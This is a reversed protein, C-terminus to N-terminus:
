VSGRFVLEGVADDLVDQLKLFPFGHSYKISAVDGIGYQQALRNETADGSVLVHIIGSAQAM